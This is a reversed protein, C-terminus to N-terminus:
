ERGRQRREAEQFWTETNRRKEESPRFGCEPCAPQDLFSDGQWRYMIRCKQCSSEHAPMGEVFKGSIPLDSGAGNPRIEACRLWSRVLVQALQTADDSEAAVVHEDEQATGLDLEPDFAFADAESGTVCAQLQGYWVGRVKQLVLKAGDPIEDM